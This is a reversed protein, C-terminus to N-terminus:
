GAGVRGSRRSSACGGCGTAHGTATRTREVVHVEPAFAAVSEALAAKDLRWGLTRRWLAIDSPPRSDSLLENLRTWLGKRPEGWRGLRADDARSAHRGTVPPLADSRLRVGICLEDWSPGQNTEIKMPFLVVAQIDPWPVTVTPVRWWMGHYGIPGIPRGFTLGRNDVALAVRRRVVEVLLFLGFGGFMAIAGLLFVLADTNTYIGETYVIWSTLVATAVAPLLFVTMVFALMPTFGM